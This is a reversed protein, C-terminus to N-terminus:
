AEPQVEPQAEPAVEEAPAEAPATEPAVEPAAEPANEVAPKNEGLAKDAESEVPATRNAFQAVYEEQTANIWSDAYYVDRKAALEEETPAEVRCVTFNGSGDNVPQKLYAEFMTFFCILLVLACM